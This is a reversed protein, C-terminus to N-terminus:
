LDMLLVPQGTRQTGGRLAEEGALLQLRVLLLRVPRALEPTLLLSAACDILGLTLQADVLTVM